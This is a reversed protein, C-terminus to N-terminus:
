VSCSTWPPPGIQLLCVRLFFSMLRLCSRLLFSAMVITSCTYAPSPVMTSAVPNLIGSNKAEISRFFGLLPYEKVFQRRM